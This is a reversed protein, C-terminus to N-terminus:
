WCSRMEPYELVSFMDDKFYVGRDNMFSEFEGTILKLFARPDYDYGDPYHGAKPMELVMTEFGVDEGHNWVVERIANVVETGCYEMSTRMQDLTKNDLSAAM